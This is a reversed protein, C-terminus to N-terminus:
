KTTKTKRGGSQGGSWPRAAADDGDDDAASARAYVRALTDDQSNVLGAFSNGLRINQSASYRGTNAYGGIRTAVGAEYEERTAASRSRLALYENLKADEQKALADLLSRVEAKLADIRKREELMAADLDADAQEMKAEFKDRARMEVRSAELIELRDKSADAVDLPVWDLRAAIADLIQRQRALSSKGERQVIRVDVVSELVGPLFQFEVDHVRAEDNVEALVYVGAGNFFNGRATLLQTDQSGYLLELLQGVADGKQSFYVFAPLKSSGPAQARTSSLCTNELAPCPQLRDTKAKLGVDYAREIPPGVPEPVRTERAAGEVGLKDLLNSIQALAARFPEDEEAVIVQGQVGASLGQKARAPKELALATAVGAAVKLAERRRIVLGKSNSTTTTKHGLQVASAPPSWLALLLWRRRRRGLRPADQTM